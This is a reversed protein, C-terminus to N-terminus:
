PAPPGAPAAPIPAPPRAMLRRALDTRREAEARYRAGLRECVSQELTRLIEDAELWAAGARDTEGLGLAFETRDLHLAVRGIRELDDATPEPAPVPTPAPVGEAALMAEARARDEASVTPAIPEVPQPRPEAQGCAALALVIGFGSVRFGFSM